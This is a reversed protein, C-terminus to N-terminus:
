DIEKLDVERKNTIYWRITGKLSEELDTKAKFGFEKEAKL